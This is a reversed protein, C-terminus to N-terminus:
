NLSKRAITNVSLSGISDSLKLYKKLSDKQVYYYYANALQGYVRTNKPDLKMSKKLSEITKKLYKTNKTKFFLQGYSTSISEWSKANKPNISISKELFEISKKFEGKKGLINGYGWFIDANTKDLLWAQNFRSMALDLKNKYFYGWGYDIHKVAAKKRNEFLKDCEILFDNDIEIQKKCKTIQGYMPLKNIGEQCHEKKCSISFVFLYLIYIKKM